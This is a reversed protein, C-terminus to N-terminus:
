GDVPGFREGLDWSVFTPRSAKSLEGTESWKVFIVRFCTWCDTAGSEESSTDQNCSSDIVIECRGFGAGTMDKVHGRHRNSCAFGRDSTAM